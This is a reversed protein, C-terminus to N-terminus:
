SILGEERVSAVRGRGNRGLVECTRGSEAVTPPSPHVQTDRIGSEMSLKAMAKVPAVVGKLTM